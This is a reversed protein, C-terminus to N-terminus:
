AIASAFQDDHGGIRQEIVAILQQQRGRVIRQPSRRDTKGAAGRHMIQAILGIAPHRIQGIDFALDCGIGFANHHDVRVVGCTRKVRVGQQALDDLQCALVVQHNKGIFDIVLHQIVTSFM